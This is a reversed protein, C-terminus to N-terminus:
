KLARWHHGTSALQTLRHAAVDPAPHHGTVLGLGQVEAYLGRLRMHDLARGRPRM